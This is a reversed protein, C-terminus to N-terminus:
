LGTLIKQKLWLREFLTIYTQLYTEINTHTTTFFKDNQKDQKGKELIVVEQRDKIFFSIEEVQIGPDVIEIVENDKMSDKISKEFKGVFVIRIAKNTLTKLNLVIDKLEKYDLYQSNGVFIDLEETVTKIMTKLAPNVQTGDIKEIFEKNSQEQQSTNSEKNKMHEDLLATHIGRNIVGLIKIYYIISSLLFLYSFSYFMEWTWETNLILEESIQAALTYGADGISLFIMSISFLFWHFIYPDKKSLCVLNLISLILLSIDGIHYLISYHIEVLETQFDFNQFNQIFPFILILPIIISVFLIIKRDLPKKEQLTRFSSYLNYIFFTYGILFIIDIYLPYPVPNKLILQYFLYGGEAITWFLIGLTIFRIRKFEPNNRKRFFLSISFILCATLLIFPIINNLENTRKTDLLFILIYIFFITISAGPLIGFLIFKFEPNDKIIYLDM